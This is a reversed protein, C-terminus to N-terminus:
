AQTLTPSLEGTYAGSQAVDAGHLVMAGVANKTVVPEPAPQCPYRKQSDTASSGAWWATSGYPHYEEYKLFRPCPAKYAAALTLVFASSRTQTLSAMM